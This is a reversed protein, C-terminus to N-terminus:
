GGSTRKPKPPASAQREAQKAAADRMIDEAADALEVPDGYIEEEILVYPALQDVVREQSATVSRMEELVRKAYGSIESLRVLNRRTQRAAETLVQEASPAPPRAVAQRALIEEALALVRVRVDGEPRKGGKWKSVTSNAVDLRRAVVNNGTRKAEALVLQIAQELDM